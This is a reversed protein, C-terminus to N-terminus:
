CNHEIVILTLASSVARALLSNFINWSIPDLKTAQTLSSFLISSFSSSAINQSNSAECSLVNSKGSLSIILILVLWNIYSYWILTLVATLLSRSLRVDGEFIAKVRCPRWCYLTTFYLGLIRTSSMVNEVRFIQWSNDATECKFGWNQFGHKWRTMKELLVGNTQM